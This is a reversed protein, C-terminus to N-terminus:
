WADDADVRQRRVIRRARESCDRRPDSWRIIAPGTM